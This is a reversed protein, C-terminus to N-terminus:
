LLLFIHSEDHDYKNRHKLSKDCRVTEQVLLDFDENHWMSLITEIVRRIDFGKRVTRDRQLLVSSFVLFRESLFNDVSFHALEQALQDVYKRGVSGGPLCYHKGSLKIIALWRNYWGGDVGAIISCELGEAFTRKMLLDVEETSNSDQSVNTVLLTNPTHATTTSSTTVRPQSSVMTTKLRDQRHTVDNHCSSTRSPACNICPQRKKVCDCRVCKANPGNCKCCPGSWGTAM